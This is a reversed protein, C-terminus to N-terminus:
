VPVATASPTKCPSASRRTSSAAVGSGPSEVSGSMAGMSISRRGGNSPAELSSSTMAPTASAM